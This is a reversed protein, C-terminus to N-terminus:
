TIHLSFTFVRIWHLKNMTTLHITERNEEVPLEMTLGLCGEKERQEGWINGERLVLRWNNPRLAIHRRCKEKRQDKEFINSTRYAWAAALLRTSSNVKEDRLTRATPSPLLLLEVREDQDDPLEEKEVPDEHLKWATTTRIAIVPRISAELVTRLDAAKM